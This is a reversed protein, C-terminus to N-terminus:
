NNDLDQSVDLFTGKSNLNGAKKELIIKDNFADIQFHYKKSDNKM